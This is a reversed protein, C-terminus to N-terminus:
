LQIMEFDINDGGGGGPRDCAVNNCSYTDGANACTERLQSAECSYTVARPEKIDPSSGAKCRQSACPTLLKTRKEFKANVYSSKKDGSKWVSGDTFRVEDIMLEVQFDKGLRGNEIFSQYFGRLSIPSYKIKGSKNPAFNGFFRLHPSKGEKLVTQRNEDTYVMWKLRVVKVDKTSNNFIEFSAAAADKSNVSTVFVPSTLYDDKLYPSFSVSWNGEPFSNNIQEEKIDQKQMASKQSVFFLAGLMFVGATILIWKNIKKLM